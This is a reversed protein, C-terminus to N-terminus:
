GIKRGAIVLDPSELPVYPEDAMTGFRRLDDFGAARLADEIEDGRWGHHVTERSSRVDVVPERGPVLNLAIPYFGVDRQGRRPRFIRLFVIEGEGDPNPRVNVGMTRVDREVIREFNLMQLLFPADPRLASALGGFFGALAEEDEVFALGNGICMAAAFPAEPLGAADAVDREEFRVRGGAGTEGAHDAAQSIMTESLDIGVVNWGREAFHRAHEGTGCGVDLLLKDDAQGLIGDLFPEERRLRSEWAIVSRYDTSPTPDKEAM